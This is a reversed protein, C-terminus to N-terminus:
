AALRKEFRVRTRGCDPVVELRDMIASIIPIGRGGHGEPKRTQASEFRGGCDAIEMHLCEGTLEMSLQIGRPDCPSGHEVANAVAETTALMLEWTTGDDLGLEATADRVFARAM